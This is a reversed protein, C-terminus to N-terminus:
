RDWRYDKDMWKDLPHPEYLLAVGEKTQFSVYDALPRSKNATQGTEGLQESSTARTATGEGEKRMSSVSAPSSAKGAAIMAKYCTKGGDRPKHYWPGQLCASCSLWVGRFRDAFKTQEEWTTKVMPPKASPARPQGGWPRTRPHEFEGDTGGLYDHFIM